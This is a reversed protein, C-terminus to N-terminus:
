SGKGDELEKVRIKLDVIEKRLQDEITDVRRSLGQIGAIALASMKGYSLSLFGDSGVSVLESCVKQVEQAIFGIHIDDDRKDKWRFTVPNLKMVMDLGDDVRAYINKLRRDSSQIYDKAWWKGDSRLEAIKTTSRYGRFLTYTEGSAAEIDVRIGHGTAHDQNFYAAYEGSVNHYVYMKATANTGGIEVNGAIYTDGAGTLNFNIADAQDQVRLAYYAGSTYQTMDVLLGQGTATQPEIRVAPTTTYGRFFSRGDNTVGFVYKPTGAADNLCAISYTSGGTGHLKIWLGHAYTTTGRILQSWTYNTSNRIHLREGTDRVGNGINVWINDEFQFNANGGFSGGDNFQVHHDSGAPNGAGSGAPTAWSGDGRLFDTTPSGSVQTRTLNGSSDCLVAYNQVTEPLTAKIGVSTLELEVAGNNRSLYVPVNGTAMMLLGTSDSGAYLMSLGAKTIGAITGPQADTYSNLSTTGGGAVNLSLSCNSGSTGNDSHTININAGTGATTEAVTFTNNNVTVDGAADIIMGRTAVNTGLYLAAFGPSGGDDDDYAYITAYGSADVVTTTIRVGDANEGFMNLPVAGNAFIDVRGTINIGTSAVRFREVNNTWLSLSGDQRNIFAINDNSSSVSGLYWLQTNGTYSNHGTIVSNAFESNDATTVHLLGSPFGGVTGPLLGKVELPANPSSTGIGLRTGNFTLNEEAQLADATATCTIMRNDAQDAVSVNSSGGAAAGYSLKGTTTDYFVATTEAIRAPLVGAAGTGFYINGPDGSVGGLGLQLFLDGGDGTGNGDGARVTIDKGDADTLGAAAHIDITYSSAATIHMVSSQDYVSLNWLDIEASLLSIKGAGKTSLALDVNTQSGNSQIGIVDANYTNDGLFVQSTVSTQYPSGPMLYVGGPTSLSDAALANGAKITVSGGDNGVGDPDGAKLTIPQGNSAVGDPTSIVYDKLLMTDVTVGVGAGYEGITNVTLVGGDIEVNDGGNKPHLTTDTRDWFVGGVAAAIFAEFGDDASNRRVSQLATLDLQTPITGFRAM